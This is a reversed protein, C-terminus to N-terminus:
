ITQDYDPPVTLRTPPTLTRWGALAGHYDDPVLLLTSYPESTATRARTVVPRALSFPPFAWKKTPGDWAVSLGDGESMSGPQPWRAGFRPARNNGVDAFLDIEPAETGWATNCTKRLWELPVSARSLDAASLRSGADQHDLLERPSWEPFYFVGLRECVAVLYRAAWACHRTTVCGAAIVVASQNDCVGRVATGPTPNLRVIGRAVGYIERATSSARTDAALVWSRLFKPFPEATDFSEGTLLNHCTIGVGTESADQLAVGEKQVTPVRTAWLRHGALATFPRARRLLRPADQYWFALEALADTTLTTKSDGNAVADACDAHLTSSLIAAMPCVTTAFCVRGLWSRLATTSVGAHRHTLADRAFDAIRNAKRAPLAFCSREADVIVGLYTIVSHPRIFTKKPSLRLGADRLDEAIIRSTRILEERTSAGWIFDDLYVAVKLGAARWAQVLSGTLSQFIRPACSLGFPLVKWRAFPTASGPPLRLGLRDASADSV